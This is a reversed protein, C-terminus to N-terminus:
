SGGHSVAPRSDSRLPPRPKAKDIRLSRGHFCVGTVQAVVALEDVGATISVTAFGYGLPARTEHNHIPRVSQLVVGHRSLLEALFYELERRSPPPVGNEERTPINGVFWESEITEVRDSAVAM